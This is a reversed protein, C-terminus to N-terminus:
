PHYDQPVIYKLVEHRITATVSNTSGKYDGDMQLAEVTNTTIKLKKCRHSELFAQTAIDGFFAEKIMHPLEFRNFDKIITIEFIGDNIVSEHCFEINYGVQGTNTILVTFAKTSFPKKNDLQITYTPLEYTFATSLISTLYSAVGRFPIKDFQQIVKGDYGLGAAMFFPQGNLIVADIAFVKGTNILQIAEPIHLPIHLKRANANGSGTPINAMIVDTNMLIQGVENQTGDGGVVAVIDIEEILCQQALKIAHGAYRTPYIDYTFRELDLHHKIMRETLRTRFNGGSKPNVIFRVKKKKL